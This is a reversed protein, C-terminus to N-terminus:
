QKKSKSQDKEANREDSPKKTAPTDKNGAPPQGPGAPAAMLEPAPPWAKLEAEIKKRLDDALQPFLKEVVAKMQERRVGEPAQILSLRAAIDFEDYLGRVDFTDPYTVLDKDSEIKKEEGNWLAVLYAIKNEVMELSDAKATLLANVREFDYAKAVGSSNDIGKSNDQKTREGALGVTHYIENIIKEIVQLILQAQKPDPSIYKPEAGGEGDYLFMRKTGMELLKNYDDEGPLVNQAPMALQSFTQDQIVADLNSLYNAVARDLYAIDDILSPSVYEDDSIINDALIVPVVGLNHSGNAVEVIQKRGNRNRREEFLRWETKTWLRFRPVLEGSSGFPDDDDRRTEQILIWNLSGTEDFSYDLMHTPGVIYAYTHIALNRAEAVSVAAGAAVQTPMNNDVVIGIRGLTSSKKSIQRSFDKIDLGNRTARKWFDLVSKPASDSRHIEQKFLYKNLLDVVERSHNFRYCRAVRDQFEKEGEKVYKFINDEFWERGGSYTEELFQWHHCYDAYFPHRREVLARLRKQDESTIAPAAASVTKPDIVTSEGPKLNM